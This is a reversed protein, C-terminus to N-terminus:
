KNELMMGINAQKDKFFDLINFQHTVFRSLKEETFFLQELEPQHIQSTNTPLVVLFLGSSVLIRSIDKLVSDFTNEDTYQLSNIAIICPWSNPEYTSVNDFLNDVFVKCSHGKAQLLDEANAAAAPSFDIGEVEFGHEALWLMDSGAGCGLELVRKHGNLEAKKAFTPLYPHATIEFYKQEEYFDQWKKQM